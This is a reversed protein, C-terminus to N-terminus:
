FASAVSQAIDLFSMFTSENDVEDKPNDGKVYLATTLKVSVPLLAAQNQLVLLNDFSDYVRDPTTVSFM